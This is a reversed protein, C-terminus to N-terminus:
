RPPCAHMCHMGAEIHRGAQMCASTSCDCSNWVNHCPWVITEVKCLYHPVPYIRATEFSSALLSRVGHHLALDFDTVDASNSGAATFYLSPHYQAPLMQHAASQEDAGYMSYPVHQAAAAPYVSGRQLQHAQLFASGHQPQQPAGLLQQQSLMGQDMRQWPDEHQCLAAQFHGPPCSVPRAPHQPEPALGHGIMHQGQHWAPESCRRDDRVTMTWDQGPNAGNYHLGAPTAASGMSSLPLALRAFMDNCAARLGASTRPFGHEGINASNLHVNALPGRSDSPMYMGADGAQAAAPTLLAESLEAGGAPAVYSDHM